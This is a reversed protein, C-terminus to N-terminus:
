DRPSPSTYLLCNYGDRLHNRVEEKKLEKLYYKVAQNLFANRKQNNNKCYYEIEEVIYVPLEIKLKRSESM